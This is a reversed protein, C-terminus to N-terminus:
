KGPQAPQGSQSPSVRELTVAILEGIRDLYTTAMDRDFRHPDSSGIVLLGLLRDNRLPILALSGEPADEQAFLWSIEDSSLKAGSISQGERIQDCIQRAIPNDSAVYPEEALQEPDGSLLKLVAFELGFRSKLGETVLRVLQNRDEVQMLEIIFRHLQGGLADNETANDVLQHLQNELTENERRLALVQREILSVARGSESHPIELHRLLHPNREFYAPNEQLFRSVAEEWSLESQKEEIAM